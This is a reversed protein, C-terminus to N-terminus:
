KCKSLKGLQPEQEQIATKEEQRMEAHMRIMGPTICKLFHKFTAKTTRQQSVKLM